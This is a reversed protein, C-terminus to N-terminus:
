QALQGSNVKLTTPTVATTSWRKMNFTQGPSLTYLEIAPFTLPQMTTPKSTPRLFWVQQSGVVRAQGSAEVLLATREDIGIGRTNPLRALWTTLRGLRKRPTFHSDTILRKLIPIHLFGTGLTNKEHFANALAQESTITDHEASFYSEGLIALGASTGGVPVGERIRKNLAASLPTDKWLRVYNWQDGGAFFIAEAKNVADLVSPDSSQERTKLILTAVSNVNGLKLVFPNYAPTGAARLILFDGGASKNILWRFAEEVDKGGGMLLYGPSPRTTIDAPNGIRTYEPSQALTVLLLAVLV